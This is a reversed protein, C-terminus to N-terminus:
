VDSYHVDWWIVNIINNPRREYLIIVITCMEIIPMGDYLITIIIALFGAM